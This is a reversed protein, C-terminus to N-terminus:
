EANMATASDRGADGPLVYRNGEVALLYDFEAQTLGCYLRLWILFMIRQLAKRDARYCPPGDGGRCARARRCASQPCHRPAGAFSLVERAFPLRDPPVDFPYSPKLFDPVKHVWWAWVEERQEPTLPTKDQLSAPVVLVSKAPEQRSM